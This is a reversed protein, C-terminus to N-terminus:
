IDKRIFFIAQDGRGESNLKAALRAYLNKKIKRKLFTKFGKPRPTVMPINNVYRESGSFQFHTSDYKIDFLKLGNRSALLAISKPSHLFYHRPADLQVWNTKYHSWAYCPVTPIRLVCIGDPNLLESVKALNEQPNEIHEFAHDYIILDWIGKIEFIDSKLITLKNDYTIPAAIYPDCGAINRFNLEALPYLIRNGNGCGVELIHSEKTLGLNQLFDFKQVPLIAHLFKQFLTKRFLSAEYLIRNFGALSGNFKEGAYPLFSYYGVPYFEAINLPFETIQLCDCAACQFYLFVDRMGFMMEKAQHLVIDKNNYGCVKCIYNSM